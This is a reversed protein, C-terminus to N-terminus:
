FTSLIMSSIVPINTLFPGGPLRFVASDNRTITNVVLSHVSYLFVNIMRIPVHGDRRLLCEVDPDLSLTQKSRCLHAPFIDSINQRKLLGISSLAGVKLGERELVLRKQEEKSNGQEKVRGCAKAIVDLVDFYLCHKM